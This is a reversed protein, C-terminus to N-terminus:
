TKSVLTEPLFTTMHLDLPQSVGRSRVQGTNNGTRGGIYLKGNLQVSDTLLILCQKNRHPLVANMHLPRLPVAKTGAVITLMM